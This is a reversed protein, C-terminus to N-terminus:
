DLRSMSPEQLTKERFLLRCRLFERNNTPTTEHWDSVEVDQQLLGSPRHPIDFLRIKPYDAAAIEADADKSARVSWEMNSQGSCVWVEGFLVNTLELTNNGVVRLTYPGGAEMAPLETRWNGEADSVMVTTSFLPDAGENEASLIITIEEGPAAWGWIPVEMNRQLVMNSGIVRPLTVEAHIIPQTFLLLFSSLFLTIRKM